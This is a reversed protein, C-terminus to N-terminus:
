RYCDCWFVNRAQAEEGVDQGERNIDDIQSMSLHSVVESIMRHQKLRQQENPQTLKDLERNVSCIVFSLTGKTVKDTYSTALLIKTKLSPPMQYELSRIALDYISVVQRVFVAFSIASDFRDELLDDAMRRANRNHALQAYLECSQAPTSKVVLCEIVADFVESPLDCLIEM